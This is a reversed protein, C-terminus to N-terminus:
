AVVSVKVSEVRSATVLPVRELGAEVRAPRSGSSGSRRSRGSRAPAAVPQQAAWALFGRTFEYGDVGALHVESLQRGAGDYAEAAIWSRGDPTTGAEPGGVLGLTREGALRM